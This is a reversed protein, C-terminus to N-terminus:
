GSLGFASDIEATTTVTGAAIAAVVSGFIAFCKDVHALVADSIAIVEPATLPVLVGGGIHWQTTWAPDAAAKIRAGAIMLKSRDDTAVQIGAVAIGGTEKRWKADEAYAVLDVSAPPLSLATGDWLMGCVAQGAAFEVLTGAVDLSARPTDRWVQVVVGDAVLATDM